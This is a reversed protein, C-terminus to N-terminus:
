GGAVEVDSSCAGGKEVPEVGPVAFAGKNETNFVGVLSSVRLFGNLYDEISQPPQAHVPILTGRHAPFVARVKLRLPFADVLAVEVLEFGSTM